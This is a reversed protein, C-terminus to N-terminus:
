SDTREPAGITNYPHGETAVGANFYRASPRGRSPRGYLFALWTTNIDCCGAFGGM